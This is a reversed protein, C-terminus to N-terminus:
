KPPQTTGKSSESRLKALQLKAIELQVRASEDIVPQVEKHWKGFGYMLGLTGVMGLAVLAWRFFEKDSKAIDLQRQAIAQRLQQPATPPQEQRLTEIEVLLTIMQENSSKNVYLTSGFSFVILLLGFLAYFKYINDTPIPIKSEM